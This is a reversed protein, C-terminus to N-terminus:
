PIALCHIIKAALVGQNFEEDLNVLRLPNFVRLLCVQNSTYVELMSRQGTFEYAYILLEVGLLIIKSSYRKPVDSWVENYFKVNPLCSRVIDPLHAEM